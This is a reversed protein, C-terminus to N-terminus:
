PAEVRLDDPDWDEVGGLDYVKTFGADVLKQAAIASRRGSRCYVVTPRDRDLPETRTLWLEEDEVPISQAGVLHGSRYEDVSRVDVVLAGGEDIIARGQASDIQTVQGAVAEPIPVAEEGGCGSLLATTSILALLVAAATHRRRDAAHQPPSQPVVHM